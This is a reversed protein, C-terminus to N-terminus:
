AWYGETVFRRYENQWQILVHRPKNVEHLQSLLSSLRRALDTDKKVCEMMYQVPPLFPCVISIRHAMAYCFADENLKMATTVFVGRPPVRYDILKGVFAFLQEIRLKKRFKCEVAALGSDGAVVDFQHFVGSCTAQRLTYRPPYVDPAGSQRVSQYLQKFVFDEFRKGSSPISPPLQLSEVDRLAQFLVTELAM